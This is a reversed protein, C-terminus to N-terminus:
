KVIKELKIRYGGVEKVEKVTCGMYCSYVKSGSEEIFQKLEDETKDSVTLYNVEDMDDLVSVAYLKM